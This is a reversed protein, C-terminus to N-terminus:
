YPPTPAPSSRGWSLLVLGAALDELSLRYVATKLAIREHVEVCLVYMCVYMCVYM